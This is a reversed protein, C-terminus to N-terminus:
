HYSLFTKVSIESGSFDLTIAGTEYLTLYACGSNELRELTEPNPHGYRNGLGASNIALRPRAAELFETTTTGSSGHHATIYIDLRRGEMVESVAETLAEEGTGQVDGPILLTYSDAGAEGEFEALVCMSGSNPDEPVYEPAPHLCTFLTSGSQWSDGAKLDYVPIRAKDCAEMLNATNDTNDARMQPTIYVGRIELGWKESNEILEICGSLHDEDSHSIFIGDIVPLGSYRLYPLITYKGLNKESTSGGDFVYVEGADTITVNCNGQGVYLQTSANRVPLPFILLIIMLVCVTAAVTISRWGNLFRPEAVRRGLNVGPMGRIKIKGLITLLVILGYFLWILGIGPRGPNWTHYPLTEALRCLGEFIQLLFCSISAVIGLGPILSVMASFVLLTMCPLILLNLFVSYVSVKYFFYLQIPLTFLSIGFSGIFASKLGKLFKKLWAKFRKRFGDPEYFIEKKVSIDTLAEFSPLFTHIGLAAGYSLLFGAQFAYSPHVILTIAAMLMLSTIPDATRKAPYALMRIAFTGIARVASISMGSMIGYFLLVTMACMAAHVTKVRVKRLLEYLGMGLISIHLGSISLIHAIGNNKYLEDTEEDIGEKDGLLLDCLISAEKPPCISYLRNELRKRLRQLHERVFYEGGDYSIISANRLAGDYGKSTYYDHADFGGPNMAHSFHSFSGRVTLEEGLKLDAPIKEPYVMFVGSDRSKLIINKETIESIRGSITVTSKDEPPDTQRRIPLIGRIVGIYIFVVILACVLALPRRM